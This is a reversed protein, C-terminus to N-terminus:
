SISVAIESLLIISQTFVHGWINYLVGMGEYPQRFFGVVDISWWMGEGQSYRHLYLFILDHGYVYLM